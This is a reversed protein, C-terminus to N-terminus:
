VAPTILAVALLQAVFIAAPLKAFAVAVAFVEPVVSAASPPLQSVDVAVLGALKETAVASIAITKTGVQHQQSKAETQDQHVIM